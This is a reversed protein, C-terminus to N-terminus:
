WFLHVHGNVSAPSFTTSSDFHGKISASLEMSMNENMPLRNLLSPEMEMFDRTVSVNENCKVCITRKLM